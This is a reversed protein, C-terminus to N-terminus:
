NPGGADYKISPSPPIRRYRRQQQRRRHRRSAGPWGCSLGRLQGLRGAGGRSLTGGRGGTASMPGNLASPARATCASGAQGGPPRATYVLVHVSRRQLRRKTDTRRQLSSVAAACWAGCSVAYRPSAPRVARSFGVAAEFPAVSVSPALPLASPAQEPGAQEPGSAAADPHGACVAPPVVSAPGSRRRCRSRRPM